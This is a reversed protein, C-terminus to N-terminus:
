RERGERQGETGGGRGGVWGEQGRLSQRGGAQNAANRMALSQPSLGERQEQCPLVRAEFQIAPRKSGREAVDAQFAGSENGRGGVRLELSLRGM